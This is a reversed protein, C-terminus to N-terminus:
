DGKRERGHWLTRTMYMFIHEFEPNIGAIKEILSTKGAGSLAGCIVISKEHKVDRDSARYKRKAALNMRNKDTIRTHMRARTVSYGNEELEKFKLPNNTMLDITKPAHLHNPVPWLATTIGTMSGEQLSM